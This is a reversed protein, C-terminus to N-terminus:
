TCAVATSLHGSCTKYFDRVGLKCHLVEMALNPIDTLSGWFSDVPKVKILQLSETEGTIGDIQGSIEVDMSICALGPPHITSVPNAEGTGTDHDHVVYCPRWM